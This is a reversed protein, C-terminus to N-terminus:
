KTDAQIALQFRALGANFFRGDGGGVGKDGPEDSFLDSSVTHLRDSFLTDHRYTSVVESRPSGKAPM